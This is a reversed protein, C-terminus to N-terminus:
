RPELVLDIQVAPTRDVSRARIRGQLKDLTQIEWGPATEPRGHLWAFLAPLPLASGLSHTTLADVSEFSRKQDGVELTASTTDWQMRALRTGLPSNLTLSARRATGELFFDASIRQPPEGAVQVSLRGEWVDNPTVYEQRKAPTSCAVLLACPLVLCAAFLRVAVARGHSM